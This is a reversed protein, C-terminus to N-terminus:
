RPRTKVVRNVEDASLGYPGMVPLQPQHRNSPRVTSAPSPESPVVAAVDHMAQRAAHHVAATQRWVGCEAAFQDQRRELRFALLEAALADREDRYQRAAYVAVILALILLETM